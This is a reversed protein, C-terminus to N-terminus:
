ENFMKGDLPCTSCSQIQSELTNLVVFSSSFFNHQFSFTFLLTALITVVRPHLLVLVLISVQFGILSLFSLIMMINILVFYFQPFVLLFYFFFSLSSSLSLM